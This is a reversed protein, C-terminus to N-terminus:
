DSQKKFLSSIIKVLLLLAPLLSAGCVLGTISFAGGQQVLLTYAATTGAIAPNLASVRLVYEGSEPATWVMTTSSALDFAAAEDLLSQRDATLIQLVSAAGGGASPHTEITYTKGEEASFQFWDVDGVGCFNHEDTKKSLNVVVALEPEGEAMSENEFADPTCSTEITTSAEAEDPWAEVRGTADVAALRFQYTVGNAGIFWAQRDGAVPTTDATAWENEGDRYQIVFGQINGPNADVKWSLQIANSTYSAPLPLLHSSPSSDLPNVSITVSQYNEAYDVARLFLAAGEAPETYDAPMYWSWGDSGDSDVGLLEWKDNAWSKTHWWFEVGAVGSGEGDSVDLSITFPFSNIPQEATPALVTVRPATEDSIVRLSYPKVQLHAAESTSAVKLYYIGTDPATMTILHQSAGNNSASNTILTKGDAALIAMSPTWALESDPVSLVATLKQDKAATIKFYDIDGDPCLSGDVQVSLNLTLASQPNVDGPQEGCIEATNADIRVNDVAWGFYNNYFADVADFHFRVRISHGAYPSLDIPPNENWSDSYAGDQIQLINTFPGGDQSIQVWRQDRLTSPSETETFYSFQLALGEYPIQIAPSTLDASLTSGSAYATTNGTYWATTELNGSSLRGRKWFGSSTWGSESSEFDALYPVAVPSASSPDANAITFTMSSQNEYGGNRSWVTWNYSGAPLSGVSWSDAKNWDRSAGTGGVRVLESRYDVAGIAPQWSLTLSDQSTPNQNGASAPSNLVPAAPTIPNKLVRVSSARDLGILNDTLNEDNGNFSEVRDKYGIGDFISVTVNAGVMISELNNDGFLPYSGLDPYNGVDLVQCPGQYGKNVFITAQNDTPQCAAPQPDCAYDKTLVRQGQPLVSQNGARDFVMLGISLPGDPVGAQCLNVETTFPSDTQADGISRWIGDYNLVPQLKAVATDDQGWGSITVTPTSITQGTQPLNLGGYPPTSDGNGSTYRDNPQCQSGYEPFSAAESCQRPRGGNVAVDEFVIDVSTGWYSTPNTHVHFHLHHGTSYGTDDANGLFQGQHVVAGPTRLAEPISNQALHLYIVYTVPNTSRDEILIYNANTTNGNAYSWVAQKVVGGKSALIPFMTGDSFDFAYLCTSPCSKYTFVHGISGTLYKTQGKAWPLRYGTLPLSKSIPQDPATFHIRAEENLMEESVLAMMENWNEDAQVYAQWSPTPSSADPTRMVISLGPEAPFVEGTNKDALALWALALNGDPSYDVHDVKVDYLTYALVDPHREVAEQVARDIEVSSASKSIPAFISDFVGSGADPNTNMFFLLGAVAGASLGFLVGLGILIKIQNKM